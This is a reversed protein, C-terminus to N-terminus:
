RTWVEAKKEKPTPYPKNKTQEYLIISLPVFYMCSLFYMFIKSDEFVNFHGCVYIIFCYLVVHCLMEIGKGKMRRNSESAAKRFRLKDILIINVVINLRFIIYFLVVSYLFAGFVYLSNHHGLLIKILIPIVYFYFAFWFAYISLEKYIKFDCLLDILRIKKGQFKQHGINLLAPYLTSCGIMSFLIIMIYTNWNELLQNIYTNTNIGLDFAKPFVGDGMGGIFAMVLSLFLFYSLPPTIIKYIGKFQEKINRIKNEDM